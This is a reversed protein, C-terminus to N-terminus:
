FETQQKTFVIINNVPIFVVCFFSKEYANHSQFVFTTPNQRTTNKTIQKKQLIIINPIVIKEGM